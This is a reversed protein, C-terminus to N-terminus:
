RVIKVGEREGRSERGQEGRGEGYGLRQSKFWFKEKWGCPTVLVCVSFKM